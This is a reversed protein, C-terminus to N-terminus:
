LYKKVNKDGNINTIILKGFGKNSSNNLDFIAGVVVLKRKKVLDYYERLALDVNKHVNNHINYMIYKQQNVSLPKLENDIAQSIDKNDIAAKVAGCDSHGVIMLVPTELIRVGYEISGLNNFVQNGINRIVFLYNEARSSFHKTQLRSDSCLLITALPNQQEAIKMFHDDSYSDTITKNDNLFEKIIGLQQQTMKFNKNKRRRTHKPASKKRQKTKKRINKNNRKTKLHKRRKRKTKNQQNKGGSRSQRLRRTPPPSTLSFSSSGRSRKGRPIPRPHIGRSRDLSRSRSPRPSPTSDRHTSRSPPPLRRIPPPLGKSFAQVLLYFPDDIKVEKQIIDDERPYEFLLNELELIYQKQKELEKLHEQKLVINEKNFQELDTINRSYNCILAPYTFLNTFNRELINGFNRELGDFFKKFNEDNDLDYYKRHIIGKDDYEYYHSNYIEYLYYANLSFFESINKVNHIINKDVYNGQINKISIRLENILSKYEIEDNLHNDLESLYMQQESTLLIHNSEIINKVDKLMHLRSYLFKLPQPIVSYQATIGNIYTNFKLEDNYFQRLYHNVLPALYNDVYGYKQYVNADEDLSPKDHSVDHMQAVGVPSGPRSGNGGRQQPPLSILDLLLKMDDNDISSFLEEHEKRLAEITSIYDKQLEENVAVRYDEDMIIDMSVPNSNLLEVVIGTNTINTPKAIFGEVEDLLKVLKHSGLSPLMGRLKNIKQIIYKYLLMESCSEMINLSRNLHQWDKELHKDYEVIDKKKFKLNDSIIKNRFISYNEHNEIYRNMSDYIEVYEKLEYLEINELKIMKDIISIQNQEIMASLVFHIDFLLFYYYNREEYETQLEGTQIHIKKSTSKRSFPNQSLINRIRGSRRPIPSPPPPPPKFVINNQYYALITRLLNDVDHKLLSNYQQFLNNIKSIFQIKKNKEQEKREKEIQELEARREESIAEDNYQPYFLNLIRRKTNTDLRKTDQILPVMNGLYNLDRLFSDHTLTYTHGYRDKFPLEINGTNEIFNTREFLFNDFIRTQDGTTKFAILASTVYNSLKIDNMISFKNKTILHKLFLKLSGIYLNFFIDYEEKKINVIKAAINKFAQIFKQVKSGQTKTIYTSIDKVGPITNSVLTAQIEDQKNTIIEGDNRVYEFYFKFGYGDKKNNPSRRYVINLTNNENDTILPFRYYINVNETNVYTNKVPAPDIIDSLFTYIKSSSDQTEKYIKEYFRELGMYSADFIANSFPNMSTIYDSLINLGSMPLPSFWQEKPADLSIIASRQFNPILTREETDLNSHFYDHFKIKSILEDNYIIDFTDADSEVYKEQSFIYHLTGAKVSISSGKKKDGIKKQIIHTPNLSRPEYLYEQINRSIMSRSSEFDHKSDLLTFFRLFKVFEPKYSIITNEGEQEIQIQRTNNLPEVRAEAM